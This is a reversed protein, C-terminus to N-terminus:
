QPVEFRQRLSRMAYRLRSKVTERGVDTIAAIEEYSLGQERMLFVDRQDNPLARVAAILQQYSYDSEPAAATDAIETDDVDELTKHKRWYDAVKNHAIRYLWTKFAASPQYRQVSDIVAMWAEQAVEEAIAAPCSRCIFTYLTNKYRGYLTEFASLNGQQYALM